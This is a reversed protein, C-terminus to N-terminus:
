KICFFLYSSIENLPPCFPSPIKDLVALVMHKSKESRTVCSDRVLPVVQLVHQLSPATKVDLRGLHHPPDPGPIDTGSDAPGALMACTRDAESRNTRPYIKKLNEATKGAATSSIM